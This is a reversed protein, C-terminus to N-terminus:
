DADANNNQDADFNSDINAYVDQDLYADADLDTHFYPDAVSDQYSYLDPNPDYYPDSDAYTYVDFYSDPDPYLNADVYDYLKPKLYSQCDADTRDCPLRRECQLGTLECKRRLEGNIIRHRWHKPTLSCSANGM